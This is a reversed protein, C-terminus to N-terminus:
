RGKDRRAPPHRYRFRDIRKDKAQKAYVQMAVAKDRIDKVEDVRCAARLAQRANRYTSPLNDESREAIEQRPQNDNAAPASIEASLVPTENDNTTPLYKAVM